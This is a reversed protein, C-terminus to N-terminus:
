RFRDKTLDWLHLTNEKENLENYKGIDMTIEEKIKTINTLTNTIKSHCPSRRNKRKTLSECRLEITDCLIRQITATRQINKFCTKHSLMHDCQLHKM